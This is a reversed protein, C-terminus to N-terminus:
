LWLQTLYLVKYRLYLNSEPGQVLSCTCPVKLYRTGSGRNLTSENVKYRGGWYLTSRLVKYRGGSVLYLVPDPVFLYM